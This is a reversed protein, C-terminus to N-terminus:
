SYGFAISKKWWRNNEIVFSDADFGGSQEVVVGIKNSVLGNGAYVNVCRKDTKGGDGKVGVSALYFYVAKGFALYFFHFVNDFAVLLFVESCLCAANLLKLNFLNEIFLIKCRE